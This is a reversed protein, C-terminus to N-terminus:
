SQPGAFVSRFYADTRRGILPYRMGERKLWRAFRVELKIAQSLQKFM